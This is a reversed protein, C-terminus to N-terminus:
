TFPRGNNNTYVVAKVPTAVPTKAQTEPEPEQQSQYIIHYIGYSVAVGVLAVGVVPGGVVFAVAAAAKVTVAKGATGVGVAGAAGAAHTAATAGTAHTAGFIHPTSNQLLLRAHDVAAAHQAVTNGSDFVETAAFALGSLGLGRSIPRAPQLSKDRQGIGKKM